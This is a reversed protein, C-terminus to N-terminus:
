SEDYPAGLGGQYASAGLVEYQNGARLLAVSQGTSFSFLNSPDIKLKAGNPVQVIASGDELVETCNGRWTARTLRAARGAITSAARALNRYDRNRM